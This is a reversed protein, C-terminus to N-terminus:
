LSSGVMLILLQKSSILSDLDNLGSLNNLSDLDNLSCLNLAQFIVVSSKLTMWTKSNLKVNINQFLYNNPLIM